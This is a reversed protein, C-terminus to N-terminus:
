DLNADDEHLKVSCDSEAVSGGFTRSPPHDSKNRSKQEAQVSIIKVAYNMTKGGSLVDSTTLVRRRTVHLKLLYVLWLTRFLNTQGPHLDANHFVACLLSLQHLLIVNSGKASIRGIAVDYLDLMRKIPSIYKNAMNTKNYKGIALTSKQKTFRPVVSSNLLRNCDVAFIWCIKNHVSCMVPSTHVSYHYLVIVVSGVTQNLNSLETQCCIEYKSKRM